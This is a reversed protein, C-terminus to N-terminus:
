NEVRRLRFLFPICGRLAIQPLLPETINQGEQDTTSSPTLEMTEPPSPQPNPQKTTSTLFATALGIILFVAVLAAIISMKKNKM